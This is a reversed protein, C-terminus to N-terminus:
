PKWGCRPCKTLKGHSIQDAEKENAKWTCKRCKIEPCNGETTKTMSEHTMGENNRELESFGSGFGCGSASTEYTRDMYSTVISDKRFMAAKILEATMGDFETFNSEGKVYDRVANEWGRFKKLINSPDEGNKMMEFVVELWPDIKFLSSDMEQENKVNKTYEDPPVIKRETPTNKYLKDSLAKIYGQSIGPNVKEVRGLMESIDVKEGTLQEYVVEQEPVDLYNRVARSILKKKGSEVVMRHLRIFSHHGYGWKKREEVSVNFETPSLDIFTDGVTADKLAKQMQEVWKVDAASRRTYWDPKARDTAPVMYSERASVNDPGLVLEINGDPREIIGHEYESVPVRGYSEKAYYHANEVFYKKYNDGYEQTLQYERGLDFAFPASKQSETEAHLLDYSGDPSYKQKLLNLSSFESQNFLSTQAEASM